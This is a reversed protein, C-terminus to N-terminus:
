LNIKSMRSHFQRNRIHVFLLNIFCAIQTGRVEVFKIEWPGRALHTFNRTACAGPIGRANEGVGRTLSGSLWWLVRTVGTGHHMTPDSVIPKRQLRHRPFRQRCEQRMRLVYNQMDQLLGMYTYRWQSRCKVLTSNPQVLYIGQM